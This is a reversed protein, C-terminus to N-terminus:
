QFFLKLSLLIENLRGAERLVAGMIAMIQKQFQLHKVLNQSAEVRVGEGTNCISNFKEKCVNYAHDWFVIYCFYQYSLPGALSFPLPVSGKSYKVITIM